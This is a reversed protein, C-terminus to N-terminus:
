FPLPKEDKGGAAVAVLERTEPAAEAPKAVKSWQPKAGLNDIRLWGDADARVTAFADRGILDGKELNTGAPPAAGGFLAVLYSYMKSKPGSATSTSADIQKGEHPGEDIVFIWDLLDIDQGAKPGTKATVTRPDKIDTLTVSYVGDPIDSTGGKSVTIFPM